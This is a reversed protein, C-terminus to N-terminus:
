SSNPFRSNAPAARDNPPVFEKANQPVCILLVSGLESCELSRLLIGPPDGPDSWWATKYLHLHLVFHPTSQSLLKPFPRRGGPNRAM